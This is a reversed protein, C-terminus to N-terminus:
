VFGCEVRLHKLLCACSSQHNLFCIYGVKVWIQSEPVASPLSLLSM